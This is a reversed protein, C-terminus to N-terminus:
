YTLSVSVPTANVNIAETKEVIVKNGQEIKYTLSFPTKTSFAAITVLARLYNPQSQLIATKGGQFYEKNVDYLVQGETGDVGNVVWKMHNGKSDSSSVSVRMESGDTSYASSTTVTVKLAEKSSTSPSKDDDKSCGVFLVTAFVLLMPYFLKMKM